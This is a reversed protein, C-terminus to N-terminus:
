GVRTSLWRQAEGASVHGSEAVIEGKRALLRVHDPDVGALAAVQGVSVHAGSALAERAFAATIVLAIRDPLSDTRLTSLDVDGRFWRSLVPPLDGTHPALPSDLLPVLELAYDSVPGELSGDGRAYRTLDLLTLGIGTAGHPGSVHITLGPSLPLSLRGLYETVAETVSAALADPDIDRLRLSATPRAM